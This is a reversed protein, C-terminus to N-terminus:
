TIRKYFYKNLFSFGAHIKAFPVMQVQDIARSEDKAGIV